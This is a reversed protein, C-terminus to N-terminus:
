QITIQESDGWADVEIDGSVEPLSLSVTASLNDDAYRTTTPNLIQDTVDYFLPEEPVHRSGDILIIDLELTHTSQSEPMSFTLREYSITGHQKEEDSWLRDTLQAIHVNSEDDTKGSAMFVRNSLGTLSSYVLYASSLNEVEASITTTCTLPRLQVPNLAEIFLNDATISISEFSMSALKLAEAAINDQDSYELATLKDVEGEALRAAFLSYSDTNEFTIADQWYIDDISENFVILSYEGLPVYIQGEFIEEGELYRDFPASGDKPFFRFSVRHVYDEDSSSTSADISSLSWDVSVDVLVSEATLSCGSDSLSRRTCGCILLLTAIFLIKRM